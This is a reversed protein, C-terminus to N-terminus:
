SYTLVNWLLLRLFSLLLYVVFENYVKNCESHDFGWLTKAMRLAILNFLRRLISINIEGVKVLIRCFTPDQM